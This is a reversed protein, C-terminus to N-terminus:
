HLSGSVSALDTRFGFGSSVRGLGRAWVDDLMACLLLAAQGWQVHTALQTFKIFYKMAQHNEQMHLGKLKAEAEGIPNYTGLNVELEVVFLNFDSAWAPM